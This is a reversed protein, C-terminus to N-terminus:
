YISNDIVIKKNAIRKYNRKRWLGLLADFFLQNLNLNHCILSINQQVKNQGFGSAFTILLTSVLLLLTIILLVKTQGRGNRIALILTKTVFFYVNHHDIVNSM